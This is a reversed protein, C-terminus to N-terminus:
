KVWFCLLFFARRVCDEKTTQSSQTRRKETKRTTTTTKKQHTHACASMCKEQKASRHMRFTCLCYCCWGFIPAFSLCLFFDGVVVPKVELLVSSAIYKRTEHAYYLSLYYTLYIRMIINQLSNPKNMEIHTATISHHQHQIQKHDDARTQEKDLTQTHKNIKTKTHNANQTRKSQITTNESETTAAVAAAADCM